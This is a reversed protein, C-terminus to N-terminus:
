NKYDYVEDDNRFSTAASHNGQTHGKNKGNISNKLWSVDFGKWSNEVCTKLVEDKDMGSSEVKKVFGKFATETNSAKKDKRVKLWDIILAEKFGYDIMSSKFNFKKPKNDKTEKELLIDTDNVKVTDSVTDTDTVIVTVGKKPNVNLGIPEEPNPETKKPKSPRGGKAGNIKNREQLSEWKVLDRKLTDKIPDFLLDTIRDPPEPDKDTIYGCFHKILRGAEEDSLKEYTECWNTYWIVKKKGEAM